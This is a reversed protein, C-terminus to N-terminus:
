CQNLKAGPGTNYPRSWLGYPVSHYRGTDGFTPDPKTSHISAAPLPILDPSTRAPTPTPTPTTSTQSSHYRSSKTNSPTAVRLWDVDRFESFVGLRVSGFRIWPFPDPGLSRYVIPRFPYRHPPTSDMFRVFRIFGLTFGFGARRGTPPAPLPPVFPISRPLSPDFGFGFGVSTELFPSLRFAFPLLSHLVLSCSDL